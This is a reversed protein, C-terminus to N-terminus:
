AKAFKGAAVDEKVIRELFNKVYVPPEKKEWEWDEVTRLPIDYFKSFAIRSLGTLKRIESIKLDMNNVGKEVGQTAKNSNVV